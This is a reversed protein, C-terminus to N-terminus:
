RKGGARNMIIVLGIAIAVVGSLFETPNHDLLGGVIFFGGLFWFLTNLLAMM